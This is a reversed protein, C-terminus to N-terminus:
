EDIVSIINEYDRREFLASIRELKQKDNEPIDYESIERLTEKIMTDDKTDAGEKLADYVSELLMEDFSNGANEPLFVLPEEDDEPTANNESEMYPSLRDYYDRFDKLLTDTREKILATNNEKGALELAEADASLAEAGILRSSSKLAHVKVTYNTWDEAKYYSEIEDARMKISGYFIQMVEKLDDPSGCYSLATKGNIGPIQEYWPKEDEKDAPVLKTPRENAKKIERFDEYDTRKVHEEEDRAAYTSGLDPVLECKYLFSLGIAGAGCGIATVASAQQFVIHKFPYRKKIHERLQIITNEPLDSYSVICLDLDPDARKSLVSDIYKDYCEELEGVLLRKISLKNDKLRIYPKFSFTHIFEYIFKHLIKKGGFFIRDDTMFSCHLNNRMIELSNLIREPTMGQTTLKYALLALLGMSGANLGSHFISVNEYAKAAEKANEYEKSVSSAMSIYIVHHAKKIEQGFFYEFEQVSPPASDFEYGEKLYRILEDTNVETRDYYSKGEFTLMFPIIDIQCNRLISEPLDCMSNTTIVVPIKKSYTGVASAKEGKLRIGGTRYIKSDPLHTLLCSELLEGSVPKVLYGDFGSKDYLEKNESGANATLVIVPVHNNLGATQRRINQLCRIGDMEPMLHDMLIADYRNNLTMTLAEAGSTATDITMKTSALLKKEVELNMENDDVILIRADPATFEPIYHSSRQLKKSKTIDIEGIVDRGAIKQWLSVMFTSGQTYISNVTIKGDMLDVLQKVISLGLGTGEININKEEDIRSFADFLHPIADQKIGIGTDTVSFMLLVRDGEQEETQIHLTVSGEKTYKVANNLLNVLIQKIRVVDGFLESPTDPDVEIMFNLGKQEARLWIMNVIESLMSGLNYNVPIIEMKGAEIKSLDLIDNVLALLMKGAGQINDADKLIEDSADEQRLIIENLGLISNIPTRIEHSMSSFFRSQSKSLEEVKKTEERARKNEERFMWEVFWVMLCCVIGVILMSILSDIFYLQKSHPIILEPNFYAHLYFGCTEVSIIILVLPKLKGNLVLGTYLYAYIIWLVGGGQLGGGFYFIIPLLIFVVFFVIFWSAVTIKNTRISFFTIIPVFVVALVLTIIEVINEGFAIDGLLALLAVSVSLLTLAIFVREKFSRSPDTLRHKIRKVLKKM